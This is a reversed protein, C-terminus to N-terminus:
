RHRALVRGVPPRYVAGTAKTVDLQSEDFMLPAFLAIATFVVIIGLGLMGQRSRRFRGAM